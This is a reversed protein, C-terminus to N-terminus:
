MMWTVSRKEAFIIDFEIHNQVSFSFQVYDIVDIVIDPSQKYLILADYSINCDDWPLGDPGDLAEYCPRLFLREEIEVCELWLM